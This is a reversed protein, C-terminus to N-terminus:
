KHGGQPSAAEPLRAREIETALDAITPADFLTRLSLEVGFVDRVRVILQTGLLSHGGLLFFNDQVSVEEVGLLVSLIAALETEVESRPAVVEGDHLTNGADPAPLAARDIKGNTTLPLVPLAVFTTPVMYDPLSRRLAAALADRGLAAGAAPVVYAVLRREGGDDDRATVACAQVGPLAGLAAAIEDPEVRYGRIKLQDDVRGLFAGRGDGHLRARDGTRYLRAATEDPNAV